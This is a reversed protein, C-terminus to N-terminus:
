RSRAPAPRALEQAQQVQVQVAPQAQHDYTRMTPLAQGKALMDDLREGMRALTAATTAPNIGAHKLEQAAVGLLQARATEQEPTRGAAAARVPEIINRHQEQQRAALRERDAQTPEYGRSALGRMSAEMWAAARFEPTGKLHLARWGKAEALDVMARAVEPENRQTTVSTDRDVFAVQGEDHRFRYTGANITFREALAATLEQRRREAAAAQGASRDPVPAHHAQLGDTRTVGLTTAIQDMMRRLGAREPEVPAQPIPERKPQRQEDREIRNGDQHQELAPQPKVLAKDLERGVWENLLKAAAMAEPMRAEAQAARAVTLSDGQGPEKQLRERMVAAKNIDSQLREVEDRGIPRGQYSDLTAVPVDPRTMEALLREGVVDRLADPAFRGGVVAMDLNWLRVNLAAGPEPGDRAVTMGIIPNAPGAARIAEVLKAPDDLVVPERQAPELRRIAAPRVEAGASERLQGAQLEADPRRIVSEYLRYAMAEGYREQMAEHTFDSVRDLTRGGPGELRVSYLEKDPTLEKAVFARTVEQGAFLLPRTREVPMDLQAGQLTGSRRNSAQILQAADLGYVAALKDGRVDEPTGILKGDNGYARVSYSHGGDPDKSKYFTLKEVEKGDIKLRAKIAGDAGPQQDMRPEGQSRAPAPAVDDLTVAQVHRNLHKHAQDYGARFDAHEVLFVHKFTGAGEAMTLALPEAHKVPVMDEGRFTSIERYERSVLPLEDPKAGAFAMGADKANIFHKDDRGQAKLTFYLLEERSSYGPSGM